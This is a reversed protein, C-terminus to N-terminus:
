YHYAMVPGGAARLDTAKASLKALRALRELDVNSDRLAEAVKLLEERSLDPLNETAAAISAVFSEAISDAM